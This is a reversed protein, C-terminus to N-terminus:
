ITILFMGKSVPDDPTIDGVVSEAMDHVLAMKVCKSTDVEPNKTLMSIIGM